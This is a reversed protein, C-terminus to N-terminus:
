ECAHRIGNFFILFSALAFPFSVLDPTDPAAAWQRGRAGHTRMVSHVSPPLPDSSLSICNLYNRATKCSPHVPESSTEEAVSSFTTAQTTTIICSIRPPSCHTSGGLSRNMLRQSNVLHRNAPGRPLRCCFVM